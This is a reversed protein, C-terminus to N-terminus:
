NTQHVPLPPPRKSRKGDLRDNFWQAWQLHLTKREPCSIARALSMEEKIRLQYYTREGETM